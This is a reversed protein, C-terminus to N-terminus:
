KLDIFVKAKDENGKAAAGWIPVRVQYCTDKPTAIVVTRSGPGRVISLERALRTSSPRYGRLNPADRVGDLRVVIANSGRKSRPTGPVAKALKSRPMREVIARTPKGKRNKGTRQLNLIVREYSGREEFDINKIRWTRKWEDPIPDSIADCSIARPPGPVRVLRPVKTPTPEQPGSPTQEDPKSPEDDASRGLRRATARWWDYLPPIEGDASEVAGFLLTRQDTWLIRAVDGDVVCAISGFGWNRFGAEAEACASDSEDLRPKFTQVEAQWHSRLTEVDTFYQLTLEDVAPDPPACLVGAVAGAELDVDAGPQTECVLGTTRRLLEAEDAASTELGPPTTPGPTPM